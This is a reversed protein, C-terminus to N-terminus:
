QDDPLTNRVFKSFINNVYLTVQWIHNVEFYDGSKDSKFQNFYGTEFILDDTLGYGWGLFVRNQDFLHYGTVPSGGNFFVENFGIFYHTGKKIDTDNLPKVFKLQYRLRFVNEFKGERSQINRNEIRFRNSLTSKPFIKYFTTQLATRYEPYERNGVEPIAYNYWLGAFASLRLKKKPYYHLWPRITLQQNYKTFALGYWDSQRSYQLDLQYVLKDNIKGSFDVETWLQTSPM